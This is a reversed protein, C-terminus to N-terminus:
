GHKDLIKCFKMLDRNGLWRIMNSMAKRDIELKSNTTTLVCNGTYIKFRGLVVVEGGIETEFADSHITYPVTGAITCSHELSYTRTMNSFKRKIVHEVGWCDCVFFDDTLYKHQKDERAYKSNAYCLPAM